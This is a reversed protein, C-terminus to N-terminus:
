DTRVVELPEGSEDPKVKRKRFMNKLEHPEIQVLEDALHRLEPAMGAGKPYAVIFRAGTDQAVQVAEALDRDGAILIGWDYVRREAFRVVDLVILSDVGKQTLYPRFEYHEGFTVLDVGCKVLAAKVAVHWNPDRQVLRGLRLQIGPVSEVAGHFGRQADFRDDSPDFAATYWYARLFAEQDTPFRKKVEGKIWEAVGAADISHEGHAAKLAKKGEAELYGADIFAVTRGM